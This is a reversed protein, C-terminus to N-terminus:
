ALQWAVAAVTDADHGVNAAILAAELFGGAQAVSWLAAQLIHIVYGSSRIQEQSKGLWSTDVDKMSLIRVRIVHGKPQGHIADLLLHTFYACAQVAAATGHTTVSQGRAAAEAEKRNSHWYIAISNFFGARRLPIRWLRRDCRGLLGLAAAHARRCPSGFPAAQEKYLHLPSYDSDGPEYEM